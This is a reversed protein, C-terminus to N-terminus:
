LIINSAMEVMSAFYSIFAATLQSGIQLTGKRNVGKIQIVILFKIKM